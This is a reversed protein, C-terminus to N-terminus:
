WKVELNGGNVAVAIQDFNHYVMILRDQRCLRKVLARRGAPDSVLAWGELPYRCLVILRHRVKLQRKGLGWARGRSSWGPAM